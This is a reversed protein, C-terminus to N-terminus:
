ATREEEESNLFQLGLSENSKKVEKEKGKAKSKSKEIKETEEAQTEQKGSEVATARGGGSAVSDVGIMEAEGTAIEYGLEKFRLELKDGEGEVQMADDEAGSSRGSEYVSEYITLPLKGGIQAKELAAEGHFTLLLATENYTQLVHQHIGMVESGPGSVPSLTWWGVLELAPAKHVEKYKQLRDTFFAEHLKWESQSSDDPSVLKVDYAHEISIDRGNQEGLLAGVIPRTQKRITHRTIYESITLLVLPHLYARLGSDSAKSSSILPNSSM